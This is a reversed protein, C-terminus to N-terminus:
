SIFSLLSFYKSLTALLKGPALNCYWDSYQSTSDWKELCQDRIDVNNFLTCRLVFQPPVMRVEDRVQFVVVEVGQFHPKSLWVTFQEVIISKLCFIYGKSFIFCFWSFLFGLHCFSGFLCFFFGCPFCVFFLNSELCSVNWSHAWLFPSPIPFSLDPQPLGMKSWNLSRPCWVRLDSWSFFSPFHGM